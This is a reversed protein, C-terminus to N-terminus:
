TTRVLLRLMHATHLLMAQSSTNLQAHAPLCAGGWPPLIRQNRPVNVGEGILSIKEAL